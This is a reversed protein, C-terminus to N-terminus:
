DIPPFNECAAQFTDLAQTLAPALNGSCIDGFVVNTGAESAFRKLRIGEAADGFSSTCDQQAAIVAAAWRGRDGKIADFSAIMEAPTVLGPEDRVGCGDGQTEFNNARRSCDDEDTLFVLGLLADTRLFGPNTSGQLAKEAALLPMEIAPGDVGVDAACAFTSSMNPDDRELWPRTMGCTQKFHGDDGSQSQAQRIENPILPPLAPIVLTYDATVGTTTIAARYDLLEGTSIQYSNLLTAFQPFNAALNAQEEDMSYSDDVVFILDMKRCPGDATTGDGNFGADPQVDDDDDAGTIGPGCAAAALAIALAPISVLLRRM